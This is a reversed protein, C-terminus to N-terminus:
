IPEKARTSKDKSMKGKEIKHVAVPRESQTNSRKQKIMIALVIGESALKEDMKKERNSLM